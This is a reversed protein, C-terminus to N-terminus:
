RVPHEVCAPDEIVQLTSFMGQRQWDMFSWVVRKEPTLEFAQPQRGKLQRNHGPWNAIVTNGNPLRQLSTVYLLQNGPLETEDVRWVERGSADVESIYHADGGSILTHGNPLRVALFPKNAPFSRVPVGQADYEVVKKESLHPVLYTGAPTKRIVRFQDHVKAVTTPIVVEKVVKGATRDIELLRAPQGCQMVLVRGGDLPQATHIETGKPGTYNWVVRHDSTVESAGETHAWVVNGNPLYTLDNCQGGAPHTWVTAGDGDVINITKTGHGCAIFRHRISSNVTEARATGCLGLDDARGCLLLVVVSLLARKM